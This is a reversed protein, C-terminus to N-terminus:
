AFVTEDAAEVKAQAEAIIANIRNQRAETKKSIEPYTAFFWTKIEQFSATEEANLLDGAEKVSKGRLEKLSGMEASEAGSKETVYNIIDDMTIRDEIKKKPASKVVVRFTPFDTKAGKLLNYEESNYISAKKYFAKSIEIAHKRANITIQTNM